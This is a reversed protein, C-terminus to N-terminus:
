RETVGAAPQRIVQEPRCWKLLRDLSAPPCDTRPRLTVPETTCRGTAVTELCSRSLDLHRVLLFDAPLRRALIPGLREVSEGIELHRCVERWVDLLLHFRQM